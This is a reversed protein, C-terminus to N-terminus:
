NKDKNAKDGKGHLKSNSKFGSVACYVVLLLSGIGVAIEGIEVFDIVM